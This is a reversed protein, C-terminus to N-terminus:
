SDSPSRKISRLFTPLNVDARSIGLKRRINKRQSRVTEISTDFFGAIEKTSMGDKIMNCISVERPTLMQYRRELESVFPSVVQSLAERLRDSYLRLEPNLKEELQRLIPAVLKDINTTVQRIIQREKDDFQNLVEKLAINKAELSDHSTKLERHAERLEQEARRRATIDRILGVYGIVSGDTDKLDFVNTEGPFTRGSKKRYNVTYFFNPNKQRNKIKEGMSEFEDPNDYISLTKKGKLEDLSYGFLETFAPNCDRITRDTDAVLIADRISNFLARYKNESQRLDDSTDYEHTDLPTHGPNSINKHVGVISISGDANPIAHGQHLFTQRTRHDTWKQYVRRNGADSQSRCKLCPKSYDFFYQYCKHGNPTGMLAKLAANAYELHYDEDRIFVAEPLAELIQLFDSSACPIRPCYRVDTDSPTEVSVPENQPGSYKEGARVLHLNKKSIVEQIRSLSKASSLHVFPIPPTGNRGRLLPWAEGDALHPVGVVLSPWGRTIISRTSFLTTATKISSDEIKKKLQQAIKRARNKQNEIVLINVM